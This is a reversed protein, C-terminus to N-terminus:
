LSRLFLEGMRVVRTVEHLVQKSDAREVLLVVTSGLNFRALEDGRQLSSVDPKLLEPDDPQRPTDAHSCTIRSVNAAGVMVLVVFGYTETEFTFIVRENVAYLNKVSKRARLDM